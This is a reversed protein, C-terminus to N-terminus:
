LPCRSPGKAPLSFDYGAHWRGIGKPPKSRRASAPRTEKMERNQPLPRRRVPVPHQGEVLLAARAPAATPFNQFLRDATGHPIKSPRRDGAATLLFGAELAEPRLHVTPKGSDKRFM